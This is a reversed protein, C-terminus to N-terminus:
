PRRGRCWRTEAAPSGLHQGVQAAIRIVIRATRRSDRACPAAPPARGSRRQRVQRRDLHQAVRLKGQNARVKSESEQARHSRSTRAGAVGASVGAGARGDRHDDPDLAVVVGLRDRTDDSRRSGAHPPVDLTAADDQGVSARRVVGEVDGAFRGAGLAIQRDYVIPPRFDVRESKGIM